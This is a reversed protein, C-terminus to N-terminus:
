NESPSKSNTAFYAEKNKVVIPCEILRHGEKGCCWCVLRRRTRKGSYSQSIGGSNNRIPVGSEGSGTATNAPSNQTTRSGEQILGKEEIKKICADVLNSESTTGLSRIKDRGSSEEEIVRQLFRAEELAEKVNQFRKRRLERGIKDPVAKLFAKLGLKDQIAIDETARAAETMIDTAIEGLGRDKARYHILRDFARDKPNVEGLIEILERKIQDWCAARPLKKIINRGAEGVLAQCWHRKKESTTINHCLLRVEFNELWTEITEEDPRFKDVKEM